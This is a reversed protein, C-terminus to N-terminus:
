FYQMVDDAPYDKAGKKMSVSPSRNGSVAPMEGCFEGERKAEYASEAAEHAKNLADEYTVFKMM